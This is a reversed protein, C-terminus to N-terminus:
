DLYGLRFGEAVVAARTSVNLKRRMKEVHTRITSEQVGLRTAASSTTEGDALLLLIERERPSLSQWVKPSENSRASLMCVVVGNIPLCAIDHRKGGLKFETHESCDIGSALLELVCGRRCPLAQGDDVKLGGVVEWCHRGTGPGLLRRAPKNQAIVVGDGGAVVVPRTDDFKHNDVRLM